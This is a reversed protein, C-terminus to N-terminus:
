SLQVQELSISEATSLIRDLDLIVYLQNQHRAVALM